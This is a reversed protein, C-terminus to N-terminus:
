KKTHAAEDTQIAQYSKWFAGRGVNDIVTFTGESLKNRVTELDTEFVSLKRKKQWVHVKFLRFFYCLIHIDNFNHLFMSKPTINELSNQVYIVFEIHKFAISVHIKLNVYKKM